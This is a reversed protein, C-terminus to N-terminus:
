LALRAGRRDDAEESLVLLRGARGDPEGHLRLGIPTQFARDPGHEEVRRQHNRDAGEQSPFDQGRRDHGAGEHQEEAEYDVSDRGRFAPLLTGQQHIRQGRGVQRFDARHLVQQPAAGPRRRERAHGHLEAPGGERQLDPAAQVRLVMGDFVTWAPCTGQLGQPSPHAPEPM